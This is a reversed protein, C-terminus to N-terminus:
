SSREGSVVMMPKACKRLSGRGTRQRGLLGFIEVVDGFRGVRQQREGVVDEIEGGDVGAGHFELEARDFDLLRDLGGGFADLVPEGGVADLELDVDIGIDAAEGAVFAAHHLHKIIQEGIRDAERRVIGNDGDAGPAGLM